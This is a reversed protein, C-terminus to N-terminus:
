LSYNVNRMIVNHLTKIACLIRAFSVCILWGVKFIILQPYNKNHYGREYIKKIEFWSCLVGIKKTVHCQSHWFLLTRCVMKIYFHLRVLIRMVLILCDWSLRIKIIPIETDPFIMKINFCLGTEMFVIRAAWSTLIKCHLSHLLIKVATSSFYLRGTALNSGHIWWAVWPGVM